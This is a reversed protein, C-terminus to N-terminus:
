STIDKIISESTKKLLEQTETSLNVQLETNEDVSKTEGEKYIVPIEASFKLSGLKNAQTPAIYEINEIRMNTDRVPNDMANSKTM